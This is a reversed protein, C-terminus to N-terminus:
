VTETKKVYGPFTKEIGQILLLKVLQKLPDNDTRIFLPLYNDNNNLNLEVMGTDVTLTVTGDLTAAIWSELEEKTIEVINEM